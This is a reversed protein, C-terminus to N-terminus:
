KKKTQCIADYVNRKKRLDKHVFVVNKLFNLQKDKSHKNVDMEENLIQCLLIKEFEKLERCLYVTAESVKKEFKWHRSKDRNVVSSSASTAVVQAPQRRHGKNKTKKKPPLKTPVSRPM